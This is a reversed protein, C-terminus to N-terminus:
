KRRGVEVFDKTDKRNPENATKDTEERKPRDILFGGSSGRRVHSNNRAGSGYKDTGGHDIVFSFNGGCSPMRHYSIGSSARGQNKGVYVDKGEFDYLAGLGAQAGMGENGTYRDDGGFDCLYAVACDWAFGVGM